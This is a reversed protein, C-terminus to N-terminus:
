ALSKLHNIKFVNNKARRKPLKAIDAYVSAERPMQDFKDVFNDV